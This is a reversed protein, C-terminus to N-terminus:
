RGRRLFMATVVGAAFAIGAAQLPKERVYRSLTRTAEDVADIARQEFQGAADVAAGARAHGADVGAHAREGVGDITDHARQAAADLRPEARAAASRVAGTREDQTSEHTRVPM